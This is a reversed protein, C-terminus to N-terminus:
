TIGFPPIVLIVRTFNGAQSEIVLDGGIVAMLTKHLALGQGGGEIKSESDMVGPGNDEIILHIGDQTECRINLTPLAGNKRGYRAANRIVERAAYYIVESQLPSLQSLSKEDPEPVEISTKEFMRSFEERLLDRLGKLIGVEHINPLSSRPLERLLDALQRHVDTLSQLIKNQAEPLNSGDLLIM